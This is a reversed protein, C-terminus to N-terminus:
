IEESKDFNIVYKIIYDYKFDKKNKNVDV